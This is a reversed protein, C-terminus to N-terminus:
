EVPVIAQLKVNQAQADTLNCALQHKSIQAPKLFSKLYQNETLNDKSSHAQHQHQFNGDLAIIINFIDSQKHVGPLIYIAILTHM